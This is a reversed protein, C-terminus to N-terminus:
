IEIEHISIGNELAIRALDEYEPKSRKVGFGHATKVRVTGYKTQVETQERQLTYRRSTNERIGLTSTHKFILSVIKDKIENHCMCSLMVGARSKKMVIPTICVDLAGEDLLLQQAFAVAEPTMDDLNCSLETVEDGNNNHTHGLYARVCNAKEFDKTGMGYGLKSVNMIPLKDFKHVFHRLVAAGTPTCLEGKIDDSYIPVNQL